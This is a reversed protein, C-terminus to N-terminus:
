DSTDSDYHVRTCIFGSAYLCIAWVFEVYVIINGCWGTCMENIQSVSLRLKGKCKAGPHRLSVCLLAMLICDVNEIM